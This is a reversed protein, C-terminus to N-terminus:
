RPVLNFVSIEPTTGIRIPPGWFGTGPSVYIWTDHYWFLGEVYPMIINFLNIIPYFQGGHTHGSIVFSIKIGGVDDIFEAVEPNHSLLITVAAPTIGERAKRMNPKHDEYFMPGRWFDPLGIFALEAGQRHIVHNENVLTLVGMSKLVEIWAKADWYYEHNGAVFHVGDQARLRIIPDIIDRVSEVTGDVLDGTIVVADPKLNNVQQIVDEFFSTGRMPGLHLDTIQVIRFGAFEKPLNKIPIDLEKVVPSKLAQQVGVTM